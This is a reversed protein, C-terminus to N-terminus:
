RSQGSDPNIMLGSEDVAEFDGGTVGHLLQLENDDWRQDPAGDIQWSDGSDALFAGYTKLGQLITRLRQPYGSVDLSARLRFRTGMPPCGTTGCLGDSHRAPWVRGRGVGGPVGTMRVAHTILGSAVEDYRILGPLIAMGGAEASTWGSPRLANSLLSFRAGNAATWSGDQNPRGHWVEYLACDGARVVSVHRDGSTPVPTQWTSGGITAYTPYPYPGPDSMEPYDTFSLGVLPQATPVVNYPNGISQGEWTRSAFGSHLVEGAGLSAVYQASLAHTPLDAVQRRWINDAPFLPCPVPQNSTVGSGGPIVTWSATFDSVGVVGDGDLDACDLAGVELSTEPGALQLTGSAALFQPGGAWWVYAGPPLALTATFFGAPDTLLPPPAASGGPGAIVLTVPLPSGADLCGWTVHGVLTGSSASVPRLVLASAALLLLLGPAAAYRRAPPSAL